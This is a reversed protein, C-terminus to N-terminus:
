PPLVYTSFYVTGDDASVTGATGGPYLQEVLPRYQANDRFFAFALGRGPAPPLPLDHAPDLLAAGTQGPVLYGVLEPDYPQWTKGVTYVRYAPGLAAAWRAAATRPLSPPRGLAYAQYYFQLNLGGVALLLVGALVPGGIRWRRPVTAWSGVWAGVPAALAAYIVPFAPTWHALFPPGAGTGRTLTGGVLLVGAGATLLVFAAPHRWQWALLAVGLALLAAEGALLLPSWYVGDISPITNVALLNKVLLPWLTNWMVQWDGADRPIHDWLLMRTGRGFYLDPRVAVFYALLPGFAALYGLGLLGFQGLTRWGQRGHVVLLYVLLAGIVFPLLRHGYYTYEGLGGALGALVWDLPRRTRLGRLLFFFCVAWFFPTAINNLTVRSYHISGASVAYIATGAIAAARGWTGRILGYLPLATAAGIVAGPLRLAALTIGGLKLSLAVGLFWPAPLDANEWLTGFFPAAHGGGYADLATRGILIEDPHIAFPWGQLDWVRLIVALGVLGAVILWEVFQPNHIASQPHALLARPATAPPPVPAPL